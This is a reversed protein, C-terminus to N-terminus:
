PHPVRRQALGDDFECYSPGYDTFSWGFADGYFAKARAIDAVAFESYDITYDRTPATM